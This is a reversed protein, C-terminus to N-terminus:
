NEKAGVDSQEKPPPDEGRLVAVARAVAPVQPARLALRRRGDERAAGERRVHAVGEDM